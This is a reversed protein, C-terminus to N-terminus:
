RHMMYLWVITYLIYRHLRSHPIVTLTHQLQEQQCELTFRLRKYLPVRIKLYIQAQVKLLWSSFRLVNVHKLEVIIFRVLPSELLRTCGALPTKLLSVCVPRCNNAVYGVIGASPPRMNAPITFYRLTSKIDVWHHLVIV